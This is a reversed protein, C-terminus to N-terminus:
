LARVLPPHREPAATSPHTPSTQEAVRDPPNVAVPRLQRDVDGLENAQRVRQVAAPAALGLPGRRLHELPNPGLRAESAAPALERIPLAYQDPERPSQRYGRNTTMSSRSSPSPLRAVSSAASKRRVNTSADAGRQPTSILVDSKSDAINASRTHDIVPFRDSFSIAPWCVSPLTM